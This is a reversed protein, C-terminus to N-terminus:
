QALEPGAHGMLRDNGVVRAQGPFVDAGCLGECGVIQSIFGEDIASEAHSPQEIFAHVSPEDPSQALEPM